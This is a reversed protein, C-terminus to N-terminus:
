KVMVEVGEDLYEKGTTVVREENKIGSTVEVIGDEKIGSTIIRKYAKNDEGIVYVYTEEGQKIIADQPLTTVGEKSEVHIELEAYMGPLILGDSEIEVEIPYSGNEAVYSVSAIEGEYTKDLTNVYIDVKQGASVKHIYKSTISSSIKLNGEQIITFGNQTSAYQDKSISKAIILGDVPSKVVYNELQDGFSSVQSQYDTRANNYNIEATEFSKQANEFEIRSILGKEYLIKQDEFTDKAQKYNLKATELANSRQTLTANKNIDFADTDMQFLVDDKKVKNGVEFYVSEVKGPSKANVDYLTEPEISGITYLKEDINQSNANVVEVPLAKRQAAADEASVTNKDLSASGMYLGAGILAIAAIAIIKKNM